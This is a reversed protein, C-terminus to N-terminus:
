TNVNGGQWGSGDAFGGSGLVVTPDRVHESLAKRPHTLGVRASTATRRARASHIDRCMWRSRRRVRWAPRRCALQRHSATTTPSPESGPLAPSTGGIRSHALRVETADDAEESRIAPRQERGVGQDEDASEADTRGEEQPTRSTMCGPRPLCTRGASAARPPCPRSETRSRHARRRASGARSGHRCATM